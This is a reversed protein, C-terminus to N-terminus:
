LDQKQPKALVWSRIPLCLTCTRTRLILGIAATLRAFTSPGSDPPTSVFDPPFRTVEEGSKRRLMDEYLDLFSNAVNEWRFQEAALLANAIRCQRLNDDLIAERIAQAFAEPTPPVIWANSSNAYSLVGGRDPAIVPLGSAMAELPAIGFPERPNPHVFVDCNAYIQALESRNRLHGLWVVHAPARRESDALFEDRGIGDGVVILRWDRESRTHLESLTETLLRLNKEPVLRGVYLLLASNETASM